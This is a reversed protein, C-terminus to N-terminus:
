RQGAVYPTVMGRVVIRGGLLEFPPSGHVQRLALEFRVAM